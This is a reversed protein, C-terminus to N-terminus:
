LSSFFRQGNHKVLDLLQRAAPSLYSGARVSVGITRRLLTEELPVERLRIMGHGCELTERALFSLLSTTAILRPLLSISNTEIQVRPAPLQRALFVSDLWRRASVGTGPLIWRYQGLQELRVNNNERFLLHQRSAVVVMEDDLVSYSTLGPDRALMPCIIMDLQGSCLSEKLMNDQGIVLGLTIEPSQQLLEVTLQPLLYEAMSAACGLRVHGLAGSAFDRIEQETEAITQQLQRGRALLLQGVATLRIGRGDREFLRAGLANELRQISKSLAPQSRNLREAARGVHGLEAITEFYALDRLDM